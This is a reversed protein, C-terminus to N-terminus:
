KCCEKLLLPHLPQKAQKPICFGRLNSNEDGFNSGKAYIPIM